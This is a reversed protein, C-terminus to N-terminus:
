SKEALLTPIAYKFLAEEKAGYRSHFTQGFEESFFTYSGDETICPNFQQSM